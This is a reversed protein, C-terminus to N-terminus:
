LGIETLEVRFMRPPGFRSAFLEYTYAFTGLMELTAEAHLESMPVLRAFGRTMSVLALLMGLQPSGEFLCRDCVPKGACFGTPGAAFFRLGCRPCEVEHAERPVRISYVSEVDLALVQKARPRQIPGEEQAALAAELRPMPNELIEITLM